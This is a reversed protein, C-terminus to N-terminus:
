VNRTQIQNQHYIIKLIWYIVVCALACFILNNEESILNLYIDIFPYKDVDILSPLDAIINYLTHVYIASFLSKGAWVLTTLVIGLAFTYLFQMINMHFLAFLFANLLICQWAYPLRKKSWSLISGRFLMEECIGPFVSSYLTNYLLAGLLLWITQQQTIPLFAEDAEADGLFIASFDAVTYIVFPLAMVLLTLLGMHVFSPSKLAFFLAFSQKERKLYHWSVLLTPLLILLPQELLNFASHHIVIVMPLIIILLYLFTLYYWEINKPKSM